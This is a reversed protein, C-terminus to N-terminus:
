KILIAQNSSSQVGSLPDEVNVHWNQLNSARCAHHDNSTWMETTKRWRTGVNMQLKQWWRVGDHLEHSHLIMLCIELSYTDTLILVSVIQLSPEGNYKLIEFIKWHYSEMYLNIKCVWLIEVSILNRVFYFRSLNKTLIDM